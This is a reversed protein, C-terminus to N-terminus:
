GGGATTTTTPAMTTTTLLSTVTDLLATTTTTPAVTTSSSTTSSSTTSTSTTSTSSTTTSTPATTTTTTSTSTATDSHEYLSLIREGDEQTYWKKENTFEHSMCSEPDDSNPLGLMHGVTHCVVTFTEDPNLGESVAMAAGILHGQSDTHWSALGKVNEINKPFMCASAASWGPTQNVFCKGANADDRYIAMFPLEPFASRVSNWAGVVDNLMASAQANGMRDFIWFARIDAREAGGSWRYPGWHPEPQTQAAVHGTAATTLALLAAAAVVTRRFRRM